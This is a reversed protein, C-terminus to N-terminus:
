FYSEDKWKMLYIYSSFEKQYIRKSVSRNVIIKAAEEQHTRQYKNLQFKINEDIKKSKEQKKGVIECTKYPCQHIKILLVRDKIKNGM